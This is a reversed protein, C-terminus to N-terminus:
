NGPPEKAQCKGKIGRPTWNLPPACSWASVPLVMLCEHEGANGWPASVDTFVLFFGRRVVVEQLFDFAFDCVDKMAAPPYSLLGQKAEM